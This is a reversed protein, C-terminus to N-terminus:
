RVARPIYHLVRTEIMAVAGYLLIGIVTLLVIANFVM